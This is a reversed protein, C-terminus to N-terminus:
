KHEGPIPTSEFIKLHIPHILNGINMNQCMDYRRMYGLMKPYGFELKRGRIEQPRVISNYFISILEVDSLQARLIRAFRRKENEDVLRSEDIYRIIHFLNRFYHSLGDRATQHAQIYGDNLFSEHMEINEDVYSQVLGPESELTAEINSIDAKDLKSKTNESLARKALIENLDTRELHRFSYFLNLAPSEHRILEVFYEFARRKAQGNIELNEVISTHLNLLQFFGTEFQQRAAADNQRKIQASQRKLERGQAVLTFIVGAFALGSFLANIAGFKDGFAGRSAEDTAMKTDSSKVTRDIYFWSGGWMALVFTVVAFAIGLGGWSTRSGDQDEQNM